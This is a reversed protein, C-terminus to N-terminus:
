SHHQYEDYEASGWYILATALLIFVLLAVAFPRVTGDFQASAINGLVAGGATTITAIIASATGAVHPVPMMAATNCIPVLGQALPVVAALAITFLWFNPKGGNFLSVVVFIGSTCIAIMSLRRVYNAVGFREVLRANNLSNIALLIAIAGFFFPFYTGYHYVEEVIVESTALYTMMVGFLFTIAITFSMTQRHSIVERGATAVANFTFPRRNAPDLTEPLRRSWLILGVGIISPFWFVTRWPFLAILAAGISPAIIPVLLFVAMIMSMLRAMESGQYRDRIMATALSRPSAAAVGWLFRAFVLVGWTTAVSALVGAAVYLVLGVFLPRRRGYRDSVPGYLWPGLAMGLFFATLVWAVQTSDSSMGFEERMNPFAPLMVDIALAGTAMLATILAVFERGSAVGRERTITHTHAGGPHQEPDSALTV